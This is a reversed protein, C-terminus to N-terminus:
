AGGPSLVVSAYTGGWNAATVVCPGARGPGGADVHDAIEPIPDRLGEVGPAWGTRVTDLASVLSLMPTTGHVHGVQGSINSLAVEGPKWLRSVARAEALDVTRAGRADGYVAVVDRTTFPSEDLARSMSEQWAQGSPENGAVRFADSTIAQGVIEGLVTAGRAAAHEASEVVLAVSGTGLVVGDRGTDYPRAGNNSLVGLRDYGYHLLPTLEDASVALMVDAEGTAVLDAAYGVATLGAVCGTAVTSLPGKIQMALCAHGAAANMVSNPFLRPNVRDPGLRGITDTLKGITELPGTCTGFVMGVREGDARTITFEADQLASRSAALVLVGLQDMRRAYAPDVFRRHETGIIEAALKTTSLSTDLDRAPGVATAGARVADVFAARGTGLPSVVGAGTIVVHRREQTRSAAPRRGLALTCNNGGFAFSNSLVVDTHHARSTPVVDRTPPANPDQNITPPLQQDRLALTCVAAEIAGAAGLMHGVQSKTSSLPPQNGPRGAFLSDVAAQEARDNAPTGTGHGNIYDIDDVDLGVQELVRRMARFAGAGAPDPATAHHADSTLAYGLVHALPEVGRARAHEETELILIAAGEGLTTGSSRSYPSCPQQDLAKLSDFGALSLLDLVDVGGALMVDARGARITDVAYGISNAGAACANSIVVKPGKLGYAISVADASSYLPYILLHPMRTASPGGELLEWHFQEGESLGGVSTGLALGVRYPDLDDLRLRSQALAEETATLALRTARDLRGRPRRTPHGPDALEGSHHCSLSEVNLRATLRVGEAGSRVATWVRETDDGLACRLGLGTVVVRTAAESLGTM